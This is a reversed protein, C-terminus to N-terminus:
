IEEMECTQAKAYQGRKQKRILFLILIGLCAALIFVGTVTLLGTTLMQMSHKPEKEDVYYVMISEIELKEGEVTPEIKLQDSLLSQVVVDKETYYALVSQEKKQDDPNKRVEITILRADVEYKVETKSDVNPDPEQIASAIARQLQSLELPNSTEKHKMEIRVWNPLVLEECQLNRDGNDSQRVGASDVCWCVDSNNCQKAKFLGNAQCAPDYLEDGDTLSTVNSESFLQLNYVEAKMQFCKPILACSSGFFFFSFLMLGEAPIM